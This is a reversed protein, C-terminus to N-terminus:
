WKRVDKKNNRIRCKCDGNNGFSGNNNEKDADQTPDRGELMNIRMQAYRIIKKCDEIESQQLDLGDYKKRGARCAYKIVNAVWGSFNNLMIFDVPEIKYGTYHKPKSINDM